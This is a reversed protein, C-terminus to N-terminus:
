GQQGVRAGVHHMHALRVIRGIELGIRRHEVGPGIGPYGVGLGYGKGELGAREVARGLAHALLHGLQAVDAHPVQEALGTKAGHVVRLVEGGHAAEAFLDHRGEVISPNAVSVTAPRTSAPGSAGTSSASRCTSRPPLWPSPAATLAIATPATTSRRWSIAARITGPAWPTVWSM